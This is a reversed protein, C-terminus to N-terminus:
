VMYLKLQEAVQRVHMQGDAKPSGTYGYTILSGFLPNVIRSIRGRDGLSIAILNDKKHDMTLRLLRAVDDMTDAKVALKTIDASVKQANRLMRSLYDNGPTKQLNHYSAIVPKKFKHALRVVDKLLNSQIEIDITDALPAVAEFLAYRKDEGIAKRGGESKLRITCLLPKSFRKMAQYFVGKVYDESLSKFMDVRLELLNIVKLDVPKLLRLDSDSVAAAIVPCSGLIQKGIKISM